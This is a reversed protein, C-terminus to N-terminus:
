HLHLVRLKEQVHRDPHQWAEVNIIISQVESGTLWGWNFTTRILTAKTM